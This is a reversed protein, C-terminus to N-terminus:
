SRCGVIRTGTASLIAPCSAIKLESTFMAEQGCCGPFRRLAQAQLQRPDETRGTPVWELVGNLVVLDFSEPPFPLTWISSRVIQINSLREQRFRQRIFNVRELVPELAVVHGYHQALAHSNTGMGSGIDLVRSDPPLDLLWQWNARDLNLIMEAARRVEPDQADTLGSDWRGTEARRNVELMQELPIEGWYPFSTVFHPIGDIVPWRQRCASCVLVGDLSALKSHCQPCALFEEILPRLM